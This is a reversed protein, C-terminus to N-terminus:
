ISKHQWYSYRLLYKRHWEAAYPSVPRPESIHMLVLRKCHFWVLYFYFAHWLFWWSVFLSSILYRFFIKQWIKHIQLWVVMYRRRKQRVRTQCVHFFVESSISMTRINERCHRTKQLSTNTKHASLLIDRTQIDGLHTTYQKDVRNTNHPFRDNM